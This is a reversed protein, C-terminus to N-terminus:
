YGVGTNNQDTFEGTQKRRNPQRKEKCSMHDQTSQSIPDPPSVSARGQAPRKLIEFEIKAAGTGPYALVGPQAHEGKAHPHYIRNTGYQNNANRGIIVIRHRIVQRPCRIPKLM